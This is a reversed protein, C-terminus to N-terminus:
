ELKEAACCLSLSALSPFFRRSISALCRGIINLPYAGNVSESKRVREWHDMHRVVRHRRHGRLLVGWVPSLYTIHYVGKHANCLHSNVNGLGAENLLNKSDAQTYYYLMFQKNKANKSESRKTFRPVQLFPSLWVGTSCFDNIIIVKGGKRLIRRAEVLMERVVQLDEYIFLVNCFIVYDACGDALPVQRIDAKVPEVGTARLRIKRLGTKSFDVGVCRNRRAYRHLNRGLGCGCEVIVKGTEHALISDLYKNCEDYTHGEVDQDVDRKAWEFQDALEHYSDPKEAIGVFQESYDVHLSRM